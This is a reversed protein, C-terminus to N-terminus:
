SPRPLLTKPHIPRAPAVRQVAQTANVPLLPPRVLRSSAPAISRAASKIPAKPGSSLQRKEQESLAQYAAWQARKDDITLSQTSSFHFRAQSRQRPSLAAWERMRGHLTLQEEDSLHVFNKALNLWKQQQPLTLEHWESALPALAQKQRPSLRQWSRATPPAPPAQSNPPSPPAPDSAQASSPLAPLSSPASSAEALPVTDSSPARQPALEIVQEIDVETAKTWAPIPLCLSLLLALLSFKLWVHQGSLRHWSTVADDTRLQPDRTWGTETM